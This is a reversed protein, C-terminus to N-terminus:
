SWGVGGGVEGAHPARILHISQKVEKIDQAKQLEKGKKLRPTYYLFLFMRIGFDCAFLIFSLFLLSYFRMLLAHIKRSTLNSMMAVPSPFQLFVPTSLPCLLCCRSLPSRSGYSGACNVNCKSGTSRM